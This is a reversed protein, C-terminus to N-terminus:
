NTCQHISQRPAVLSREYTKVKISGKLYLMLSAYYERNLKYRQVSPVFYDIHNSNTMIEKIKSHFLYKISSFSYIKCIAAMKQKACDVECFEQHKQESKM